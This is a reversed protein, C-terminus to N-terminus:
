SRAFKTFLFVYVEHRFSIFGFPGSQLNMDFVDEKKKTILVMIMWILRTFYLKWPVLDAALESVM